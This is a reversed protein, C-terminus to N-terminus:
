KKIWALVTFGTVNTLESLSGVDVYDDDGDFSFAQGVQGAGFAAGGQLTGNNSGVADRANDEAAWWCILGAPPPVCDASAPATGLLMSIVAVLLLCVTLFHPEIWVSVEGSLGSSHSPIGNPNKAGAGTVDIRPACAGERATNRARASCRLAGACSMAKHRTQAQRRGAPAGAPVRSPAHAGGDLVTGEFEISWDRNTKM